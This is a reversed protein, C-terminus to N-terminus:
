KSTFYKIKEEPFMISYINEAMPVTRILNKQWVYMDEYKGREIQDFWNLSTMMQSIEELVNVGAMPSSVLRLGETAMFPGPIMAGTETMLRRAQYSFLNLKWNDDDDESLGMLIAATTAITVFTAIDYFV